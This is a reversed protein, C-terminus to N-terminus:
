VVVEKTILERGNWGQVELSGGARCWARLAKNGRAKALREAVHGCSTVQVGLIPSGAKVAILDIWGFVDQRIMAFPNWREVIAVYYGADRLYRISRQTPSVGRRKKVM